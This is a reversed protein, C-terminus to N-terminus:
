IAFTPIAGKPDILAVVVLGMICMGVVGTGILVLLSDGGRKEIYDALFSVAGFPQEKPRIGSYM